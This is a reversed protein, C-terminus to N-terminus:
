EQPADAGQQRSCGCDLCLIVQLGAHPPGFDLQVGQQVIGPVALHLGFFADGIHGVVLHHLVFDNGLSREIYLFTPRQVIHHTVITKYTEKAGVCLFATIFFGGQERM